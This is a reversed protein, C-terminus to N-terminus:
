ANNTVEQTNLEFFDGTVVDLMGPINKGGGPSETAPVFHHVVTDGEFIICYYIKAKSLLTITGKSEETGQMVGFLCVTNEAEKTWKEAKKKKEGNLFLGSEGIQVVCRGQVFATKESLEQNGQDGFAGCIKSSSLNIIFTSNGSSEGNRCGAFVAGVNNDDTNEFSLVMRSNKNPTYQTDIYKDGNSELYGQIKYVESDVIPYCEEFTKGHSLPQSWLNYLKAPLEDYGEASPDPINSYGVQLAM